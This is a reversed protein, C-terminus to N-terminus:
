KRYNRPISASLRTVIEYPITSAWDAVEHASIEKDNDKGIFTVTDGVCVKSAPGFDVMTYDMSVRGAVPYRKGKYLVEAKGSASFPYGHGYGVPIVGIVTDRPAIYERGYSVSSGVKLEKVLAVRARLSLVPKLKVSKRLRRDPYLGYLILGPRVMTLRANAYNILGASNAAHRVPIYIGEKGLDAILKNFINLQEDTFLDKTEEAAPFHTYIGEIKLTPIHAIRIIEEKALRYPIGLRGMGTDVDIHVKAKQGLRHAEEHIFAAHTFDSITLTIDRELALHVEHPYVHGFVLISTRVGAERLRLAEELSAVGFYSIEAEEMAKAVQVMGHGYANAKVVALINVSPGIAARVAKLNAGLSALDVDIWLNHRALRRVSAPKRKTQVAVKKKQERQM